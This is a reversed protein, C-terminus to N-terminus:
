FPQVSRSAMQTSSEPPGLSGRIVHPRSGGHSPAIKLPSLPTGNYPIPVSRDGIHFYSFRDHHLKSKPSPRGRPIMFYIPTGIGGWSFPCNQPFADGWQLTYASEAMLQASVASGISKGNPNHVGTPRLFCLKITNALHRWHAWMAPCV